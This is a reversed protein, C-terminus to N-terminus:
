AKGEIATSDKVDIKLQRAKKEEMKPLTITLVGSEYSTAAKNSDVSNPLRVSRFFSGTRRERLLYGGEKREESSETKGSVTLVNDEITVNIDGPKVGPLSAKVVVNDGDRIVDLPISWNEVDSNPGGATPGLGRWLRDMTEEMRRLERFPDWRDLVM